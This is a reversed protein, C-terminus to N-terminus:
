HPDVITTIKTYQLSISQEDTQREPQEMYHYVGVPSGRLDEGDHVPILHTAFDSEQGEVLQLRGGSMIGTALYTGKDRIAGVSTHLVYRQRKNGKGLYIPCVRIRTLYAPCVRIGKVELM